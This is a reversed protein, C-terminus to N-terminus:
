RVDHEPPLPGKQDHEVHHSNQAKLEAKWGQISMASTAEDASRRLGYTIWSIAVQSM